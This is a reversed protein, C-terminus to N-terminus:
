AFLDIKFLDTLTAAGEIAARHLRAQNHAANIHSLVALGMLMMQQANLTVVSNDQLTWVISFPQEAIVSAIAGTTAGSINLRSEADCDVTGSPTVAGADIKADRLRKAQQWLALRALELDVPQGEPVAEAPLALLGQGAGILQMAAIGEPGSGRILEEGTALNYKVFYEM